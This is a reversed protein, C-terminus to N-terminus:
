LGADQRSSSGPDITPGSPNSEFQVSDVFHVSYLSFWPAFRLAGEDRPNFARHGGMSRADRLLAHRHKTEDDHERRFAGFAAGLTGSAAKAAAYLVRPLAVSQSGHRCASDIRDRPM